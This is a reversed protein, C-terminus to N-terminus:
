DPRSSVVACLCVEPAAGGDGLGGDDAPDADPQAQVAPAGVALGALALAIFRRRRKVIAARDSEDPDTM